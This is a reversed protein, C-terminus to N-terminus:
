GRCDLSITREPTGTYARERRLDAFEAIYHAKRSKVAVVASQLFQKAKLFEQEQGSANCSEIVAQAFSPLLEQAQSYEEQRILRHIEDALKQHTINGIMM